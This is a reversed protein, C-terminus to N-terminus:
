QDALDLFYLVFVLVLLASSGDEVLGGVFSGLLAHLGELADTEVVAEVLVLFTGGDAAEEM